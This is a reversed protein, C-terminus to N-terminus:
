NVETAYPNQVYACADSLRKLLGLRALRHELREANAVFDERDANNASIMVEAQRDGIVFGYKQQLIALFEQFELRQPVCTLVLTKLLGDTPAYRTRRSGRSSSLGIERAWTSHFKGLHQKHRKLAQKELTTLLGTPSSAGSSDEDDQASWAFKELLLESADDYASPSGLCAQWEPLKPINQIYQKIANESASNNKQYEDAALERVRTKKPAVIELIFGSEQPENAVAQARNLFYILLHLGTITVLHPLADYDPLKCGLINLWDDALQGYEPLQRYPLYPPSGSKRIETRDHDPQLALVLQNWKSGKGDPEHYNTVLGLRELHSLLKPGRGSRCLMLYLLEGTRAFFRRDNSISSTQNSKIELDEYLCDPGYPFVFKSSWRKNSDGEISNSQLFKVIESFDKFSSFRSKLYSFDPASIGGVNNAIKEMWAAWRSSDDPYETIIAELHPNNFLINRLYYRPYTQYSLQNPDSEIFAKGQLAASQAIGLMELICLWPTQEDYLRHGWISEDLWMKLQSQNHLKPRPLIELM